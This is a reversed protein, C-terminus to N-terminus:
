NNTSNLSREIVLGDDLMRIDEGSFLWVRVSDGERLSRLGYGRLRESRMKARSFAGRALKLTYGEPILFSDGSEMKDFPWNVRVRDSYVREAREHQYPVNTDVNVQIYKDSQM